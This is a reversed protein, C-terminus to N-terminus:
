RGIAAVEVAVGDATAEETDDGGTTTLVVVVRGVAVGDGLGDFAESGGHGGSSWGGTGVGVSIVSGLPGGGGSHSGGDMPGPLSIGVM